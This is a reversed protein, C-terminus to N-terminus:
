RLFRDHGAKRACRDRSLDRHELLGQWRAIAHLQPVQRGSASRDPLGASAFGKPGWWRMAQEPETWAKWVRERPADLIRTITIENIKKNENEETM